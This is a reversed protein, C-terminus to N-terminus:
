PTLRGSMVDDLEDLWRGTAAVEKVVSDAEGYLVRDYEIQSVEGELASQLMYTYRQDLRRIRTPTELLEHSAYFLTSAVSMDVKEATNNPTLSSEELEDIARLAKRAIANPLELMREMALISAAEQSSNALQIRRKKQRIYSLVIDRAPIDAFQIYDAPNEGVVISNSATIHSGFFRDIEHAGSALRSRSHLIANVQVRNNTLDETYMQVEGAAEYAEQSDDVPVVMCDFDSRRNARGLAVSGFIVASAITGEAIADQAYEEFVERTHAFDKTTPVEGREIQNYTFVRAM